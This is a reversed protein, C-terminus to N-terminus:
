GEIDLVPGVQALEAVGEDDVVGMIALAAARDNNDCESLIEASYPKALGGDKLVLFMNYQMNSYATAKWNWVRRAIVIDIYGATIRIKRLIDAKADGRRIAALLVPYQLTFNNQANYFVAEMGETLTEAARRIKRYWKAYFAFDEEIFRAFEAQATLGLDDEHDRVWRHFETGILDFDRPLAGRKRERTTQAHQSRLWAKIADADEAREQTQAKSMASAHERKDQDIQRSDLWARCELIAQAYAAKDNESVGTPGFLKVQYGGEPKPLRIRWCRRTRWYRLRDIDNAM